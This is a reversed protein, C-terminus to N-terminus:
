HRVSVFPYGDFRVKKQEAALQWSMPAQSTGNRQYVLVPAEIRKGFEPCYWGKTLAVQDVGSFHLWRTVRRDSAKWVLGSSDALCAEIGPALHLYGILPENTRGAPTDAVMINGDQDVAVCRVVSALGSERYGDHTVIAWGYEGTKGAEFNLIRARRGMRFSGWVECSNRGGVTLVNHALSSRCYDRMSGPEYAFNGSDTIWRKGAISIELTGADAHAHAPLYEAAVDGGDLVLFSQEGSEQWRATWYNGNQALSLQEVPTTEVAGMGAIEALRSIEEVSPSEHWGSDAFLPIERDPHLIQNLFHLMRLADGRWVAAITPRIENALIAQRLLNATIQCHYMTSREFHEGHALIQHNRERAWVQEVIKLWKENESTEIICAAITLAALNELLHNGGLEWELHDCLYNCQDVLSDLMRQRPDTGTAGTLILWCWVPVRRSICYPHWADCTRLTTDPPYADLWSDITRRVGEVGSEGQIAAHRALFEHYQLHFRWLRPISNDTELRKWEVPFGGGRNQSLLCLNGQELDSGSERDRQGWAQISLTAVARASDPVQRLKAEGSYSAGITQRPRVRSVGIRWLRRAMQSWRYNFAIDRARRFRGPTSKKLIQQLESELDLMDPSDTM